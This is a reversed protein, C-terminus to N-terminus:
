PKVLMLGIQILGILVLAITLFTLLRTLKIVEVTQKESAIIARLIEQNVGHSQNALVEQKQIQQQKLEIEKLRLFGEFLDWGDM